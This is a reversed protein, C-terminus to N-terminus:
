CSVPPRSSAWPVASRSFRTALEAKALDVENQFLKAFQSLADRLLVSIARLDSQTSM